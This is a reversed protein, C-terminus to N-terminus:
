CSKLLDECLNKLFFFLFFFILWFGRGVLRRVCVFGQATRPYIVARPLLHHKGM